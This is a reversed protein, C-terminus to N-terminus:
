RASETRPFLIPGALRLRFRAGESVDKTSLRMLVRQRRDITARFIGQANNTGLGYVYKSSFGEAFSITNADDDFLEITVEPAYGGGGPDKMVNLTFVLEGPEAVFSYYIERYPAVPAALETSSLRVPSDRDTSERSQAPVAGGAFALAAVLVTARLMFSQTPTSLKQIKM